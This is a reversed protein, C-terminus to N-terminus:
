VQYEKNWEKAIKELQEARRRMQERAWKAGAIFAAKVIEGETKSEYDWMRAADENNFQEAANDLGPMPEDDYLCYLNM